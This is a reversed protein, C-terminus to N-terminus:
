AAGARMARLIEEADASTNLIIVAPSTNASRISRIVEELPERLGSIDLLMVEPRVRDIKERLAALDWVDSHDLLV